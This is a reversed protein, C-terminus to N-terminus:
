CGTGTGGSPTGASRWGSTRSAGSWEAVRENDEASADRGRVRLPRGAVLPEAGSIRAM